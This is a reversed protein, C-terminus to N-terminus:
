RQRRAAFLFSWRFLMLIPTDTCWTKILILYVQSGNTLCLSTLQLKDASNVGSAWLVNERMADATPPRLEPIKALCRAILESLGESVDPRARHLRVPMGRKIEEIFRLYQRGRERGCLIVQCFRGCLRRQVMSILEIISSNENSTLQEPAAYRLLVMDVYLRARPM